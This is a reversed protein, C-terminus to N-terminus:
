EDVLDQPTQDPVPLVFLELRGCRVCRYAHVDSRDKMFRKAYGFLGKDLEGPIWRLFGTSQGQDELFGPQLQGNCHPCRRNM